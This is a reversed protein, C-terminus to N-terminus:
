NNSKKKIEEEILEIREDQQKITRKLKKNEEKLDRIVQTNKDLKEEVRSLKEQIQAFMEKIEETTLNAIRMKENTKSVSVVKMPQRLIGKRIDRLGCMEEGDSSADDIDSDTGDKPPFLVFQLENCNEINDYDEDDSSLEELYNLLEEADRPDEPNYRQKRKSQVSTYNEDGSDRDESGTDTPYLFTASWVFIFPKENSHRSMHRKLKWGDACHYDCHECKVTKIDSRIRQRKKLTDNCLAKSDCKKQFKLTEDSHRLEHIRLSERYSTKFNCLKCMFPKEGTHKRIHRKLAWAGFTSFSCLECKYSKNCIHRRRHKKLASKHTAKYNCDLCEYLIDELRHNKNMHQVLNSKSDTSYNCNYCYYHDSKNSKICQHDEKDLYHELNDKSGTDNNFGLCSYKNDFCETNPKEEFNGVCEIEEKITINEDFREIKVLIEEEQMFSQGCDFPLGMEELERIVNEARVCLNKFEYSLEIDIECKPCVMADAVFSVNFQPFFELLKMKLAGRLFSTRVNDEITKLCFRCIKKDCEM